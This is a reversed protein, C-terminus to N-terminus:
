SPQFRCTFGFRPDYRPKGSDHKFELATTISAKSYTKIHSLDLQAGRFHYKIQQLGYDSTCIIPTVTIGLSSLASAMNIANGGKIDTQPIGDLSGGKREAVVAVKGFFEEATWQLNIIRDLFFDPMVVVRCEAQKTQGVFDLLTRKCQELSM